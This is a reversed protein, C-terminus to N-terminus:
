WTTFFYLVVPRGQATLDALQVTQGTSVESLTFNPALDGVLNGTAPTSPDAAAPTTADPTPVPESTPTATPAAGDNGACAIGFLM